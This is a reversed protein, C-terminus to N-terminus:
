NVCRKCPYTGFSRTAPDTQSDLLLKAKNRGQLYRKSMICGSRTKFCACINAYEATRVTKASITSLSDSFKLLQTSKYEALVRFLGVGLSRLGPFFVSLYVLRKLFTWPLLGDGADFATRTYFVARLFRATRIIDASRSSPMRQENRPVARKSGALRRTDVDKGALRPTFGEQEGEVSPLSSNRLSHFPVM